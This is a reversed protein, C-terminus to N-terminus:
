YALQLLYDEIIKADMLWESDLISKKTTRDYHVDLENMLSDGEVGIQNNQRVTYIIRHPQFYKTGDNFYARIQRDWFSYKRVPIGDLMLERKGDQRTHWAAETGGAKIERLYQDYITKTVIFITDDRDSLREDADTRITEMYGTVLQNDTDTSDFAQLAYTAAANKTITITKRLPDAAAIAYLQKWFGDIANFFLLDIGDTIVGAPSDSYHAADVDGFWAHRMKADNLATNTREEIFNFVDTNTLDARKVGKNQSWIFFSANYTTYCEEIRLTIAAPNWFKETSPATPTDATPDCGSGAKGVLGLLGLFAIQQKAVIGPVITHFEVDVPNVFTAEFIAESLSMIEKGNWTLSAPNLVGAIIGKPTAFSLALLAVFGTILMSTNPLFSLVAVVLAISLVSKIPFSKKM